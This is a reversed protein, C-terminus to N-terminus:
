GNEVEGGETEEHPLSNKLGDTLVAVCGVIKDYNEFGRVDLTKLTEIVKIMLNRDIVYLNNTGM